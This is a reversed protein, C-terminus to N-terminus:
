FTAGIVLGWKTLSVERYRMHSNSRLSATVKARTKSLGILHQCLRVTQILYETNRKLSKDDPGFYVGRILTLTPTNAHLCNEM